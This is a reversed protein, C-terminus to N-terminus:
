VAASATARSWTSFPACIMSTLMSSPRSSEASAITVNRLRIAASGSMARTGTITSEEFNETISAPRFHTCPLGTTFEIESFSPSASNM